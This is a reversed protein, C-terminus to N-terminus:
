HVIDPLKLRFDAPRGSMERCHVGGLFVSKTMIKSVSLVNLKTTAM